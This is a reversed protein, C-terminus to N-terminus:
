RLRNLVEPSPEVPWALGLIVTVGNHEVVLVGPAPDEGLESEEVRVSVSQIIRRGLADGDRLGGVRGAIVVEVGELHRAEVVVRLKAYPRVAVEVRVVLKRLAETGLMPATAPAKSRSAISFPCSASITSKPGLGSRELMRGASESPGMGEPSGGPTKASSLVLVLWIAM